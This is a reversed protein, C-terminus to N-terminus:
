IVATRGDPFKEVLIYIYTQTIFKGASSVTFADVCSEDCTRPFTGHDSKFTERVFLARSFASLSFESFCLCVNM